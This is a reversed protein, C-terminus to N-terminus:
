ATISLDLLLSLTRHFGIIKKLPTLHFAVHIMNEPQSFVNNIVSNLYSKIIQHLEFDRNIPYAASQLTLLNNKTEM